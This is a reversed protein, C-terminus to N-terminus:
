FQVCRAQRFGMLAHVKVMLFCKFTIPVINVTQSPLYCLSGLFLIFNLPHILVFTNCECFANANQSENKYSLQGSTNM